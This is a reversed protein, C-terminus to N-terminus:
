LPILHGCETQKIIYVIFRGSINLNLVEMKKRQRTFIYIIIINDSYALVPWQFVIDIVYM